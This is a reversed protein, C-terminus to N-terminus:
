SPSAGVGLHRLLNAAFREGMAQMTAGMVARVAPAALRSLPLDVCLTLRITLRTGGQADALAYWGEAGAREVVGPPPAHTYEIREGERFAMRETFVPTIGVGLVSLGSLHWRWHEGDVDIRRLLPTLRPLLVPDTLVDWIRERPAPVVADSVTTAAFRSM